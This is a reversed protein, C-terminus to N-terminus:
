SCSIHFHDLRAFRMTQCNQFHFALANVLTGNYNGFGPHVVMGAEKNVILIDDDEYIINIPIDQPILEHEVRPHKYEVTVMDGPKVKYNSKVSKGNVHVFGDTAAQQIKTRSANEIFNILFKDVRLVAQGKKAVFRYHEFLEEM